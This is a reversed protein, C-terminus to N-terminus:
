LCYLTYYRTGPGPKGIHWIYRLSAKKPCSQSKLATKPYGPALLIKDIVDDDSIFKLLVNNNEVDQEGREYVPIDPIKNVSFAGPFYTVSSCIKKKRLSRLQQRRRKYKDLIKRSSDRVCKKNENEIGVRTNQTTVLGINDLVQKKGHAGSNFTVIAECVPIKLRNIGCYVRKPCRAWVMNNLSENQNQTMGRQCGSLLSDSSLRTFIYNLETRFVFPVCNEHNYLNTNNVTDSQYKCWSSSGVPLISTAYRPM